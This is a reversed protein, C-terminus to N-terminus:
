KELLNRTDAITFRYKNNGLSTVNAAPNATGWTFPVSDWPTPNNGLIVGTHIYVKDPASYTLLAKNGQSVDVTIAVSGTDKPFTPTTVVYQAQVIPAILVLILPLLYLKGM